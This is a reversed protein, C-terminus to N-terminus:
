THMRTYIHRWAAFRSVTTTAPASSFLTSYQLARMAWSVSPLYLFSSSLSFSFSKCVTYFRTLKPLICSFFLFDENETFSFLVITYCLLEFWLVHFCWPPIRWDAGNCGYSCCIYSFLHDWSSTSKNSQYITTPWLPSEFLVEPNKYESFMVDVKQGSNLFGVTVVWYNHM